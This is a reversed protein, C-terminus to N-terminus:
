SAKKDGEIVYQQIISNILTQYPMGRLNAQRRIYDLNREPIRINISKRKLQNFQRAAEQAEKKLAEENPVSKFHGEDMAKLIEAEDDDLTYGFETKKYDDLNNM